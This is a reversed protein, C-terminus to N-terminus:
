ARAGKRQMLYTAAQTDLDENTKRNHQKAWEDLESKRFKLTGIKTHPIEGRECKKRLTKVSCILYLAAEKSNLFRDAFEREVHERLVERLTERVLPLLMDDPIEINLVVPQM